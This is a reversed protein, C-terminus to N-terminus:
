VVFRATLWADALDSVTQSESCPHRGADSTKFSVSELALNRYIIGIFKVHCM